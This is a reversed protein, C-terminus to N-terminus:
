CISSFYAGCSTKPTIASRLDAQRCPSSNSEWSMLLSDTPLPARCDCLEKCLSPKSLSCLLARGRSQQQCWTEIGHWLDLLLLEGGTGRTGPSIQWCTQSVRLFWVSKGWSIYRYHGAGQQRPLLLADFSPARRRALLNFAETSGAPVPSSIHFYMLVLKQNM